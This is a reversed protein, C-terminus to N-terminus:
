KKVCSTCTGRAVQYFRLCDEKDCQGWVDQQDHKKEHAVKAHMTYFRTSCHECTFIKEKTHKSRMHKTLNEQTNTFQCSPFPCDFKAQNTAYHRGLHAAMPAASTFVKACYSCEYPHECPSEEVKLVIPVMAEIEKTPIKKVFEGCDVVSENLKRKVTFRSRSTSSGVGSSTSAEQNIVFKEKAAKKKSSDMRKIVKRIDDIRREMAEKYKKNSVTYKKVDDLQARWDEDQGNEKEMSVLMEKHDGLNKTSEEINELLTKEEMRLDAVGVDNNEQDDDIRSEDGVIIVVEDPCEGVEIAEIVAASGERPSDGGGDDNIAEYDEIRM